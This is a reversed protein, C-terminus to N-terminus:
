QVTLVVLANFYVQGAADYHNLEFTFTGTSSPATWPFSWTGDPEEFAIPGSIVQFAGPVYLSITTFAPDFGVPMAASLTVSEGAAVTAYGTVGEAFVIVTPVALAVDVSTSNRHENGAGDIAVATLTYSRVDTPTWGFSWADAELFLPAVPGIAEDLDTSAILVPGAYVQVLDIGAEDIATGSVTLSSGANGTIPASITAIPAAFDFGLGTPITFPVAFTATVGDNSDVWIPAGGVNRWGTVTATVSFEGDVPDANALVQAGLKSDATVSGDEGAVAYTVAFDATPVAYGGPATVSLLLDVSQGAAIADIVPAAELTAAAILTQLALAVSSTTADVDALTEGYAIWTEQVDDGRTAFGYTEGAPVTVTVRDTFAFDVSALDGEPDYTYIGDVLSFRLPVPNSSVLAHIAVDVRTVVPLGGEFPVGLAGLAGEATALTITTPAGDLVRGNTPTGTSCASLLLAILAILPLARHM